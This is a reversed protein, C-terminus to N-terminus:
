KSNKSGGLPVVDGNNDIRIPFVHGSQDRGQAFVGGCPIRTSFSIGDLIVIPGKELEKDLENPLLTLTWGQWHARHVPLNIPRCEEIIRRTVDDPCDHGLIIARLCDRIPIYASVEPEGRLVWRYECEDRWDLHKTFFLKQHFRRIHDEMMRPIGNEVYDELYILDYGESNPGYPSNPYEVPGFYLPHGSFQRIINEHLLKIDLVICVGKHKDAYQAWMRSHGYGPLCHRDVKDNTQVPYDMSCCLVFTRTLIDRAAEDFLAPSFQRNGAQTRSYFKFPWTKAERPDNLEKFSGMRLTMTPLIKGALTEASTYHYVFGHPEFM